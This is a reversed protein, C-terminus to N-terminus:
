SKWLNTREKDFHRGIYSKGLESGMKKAAKKTVTPAKKVCLLCQLMVLALLLILLMDTVTNKAIYDRAM